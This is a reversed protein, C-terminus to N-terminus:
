FKFNNIEELEQKEKYDEYTLENQKRKRIFDQNKREFEKKRKIEEMMQVEKYLTKFGKSPYILENLKKVMGEFLKKVMKYNEETCYKEDCYLGDHINYIKIGLQKSVIQNLNTMIETEIQQFYEWVLSKLKPKYKKKGKYNKNDKYQEFTSNIQYLTPFQTKYCEKWHNEIQYDKRLNGSKAVKRKIINENNSFNVKMVVPKIQERSYNKENWNGIRIYFDQDKTKKLWEKLKKEERLFPIVQEPQMKKEAFVIRCVTPFLTMVSCHIDFLEGISNGEKDKVYHRWCKPANSFASYLRTEYTFEKLEFYNQLMHLRSKIRERNAELKKYKTRSYKEKAQELYLDVMKEDDIPHFELQLNNNLVNIIAQKTNKFYYETDKYKSLVKEPSIPTYYKQEYQYKELMQIFEPDKDAEELLKIGQESIRYEKRLPSDTFMPNEWLQDGNRDKKVEIINNEKLWNMVNYYRKTDPIINRLAEMSISEYEHNQKKMQQIFRIISLTNVLFSHISKKKQGKDLSSKNEILDIQKQYLEKLTM